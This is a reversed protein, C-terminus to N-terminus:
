FSLLFEEHALSTQSLIIVPASSALDRRDGLRCPAILCGMRWGRTSEGTWWGVEEIEGDMEVDMLSVLSDERM